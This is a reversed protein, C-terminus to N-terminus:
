YKRLQASELGFLKKLYDEKSGITEAVVVDVHDLLKLTHCIRSLEEECPYPIVFVSKQLMQFGLIKLKARFLHRQREYKQPIDFMVIRWKGDWPIGLNRHYRILTKRMWIRGQDSFRYSNNKDRILMRRHELNRVGKTFSNPLADRMRFGKYPTNMWLAFLNVGLNELEDLFQPIFATKM